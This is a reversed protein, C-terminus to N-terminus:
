DDDKCLFFLLCCCPLCPLCFITLLTWKVVCCCSCRKCCGEDADRSPETITPTSNSTTTPATPCEIAARTPRHQQGQELINGLVVGHVATQIGVAKGDENELVVGTTEKVLMVAQGSEDIILTHEVKKAVGVERDILGYV